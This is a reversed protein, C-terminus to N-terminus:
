RTFLEIWFDHFCSKKESNLEWATFLVIWLPGFVDAQKGDPGINRGLWGLGAWGAWGPWGLWGLWGLWGANIGRAGNGCRATFGNPPVLRSTVM